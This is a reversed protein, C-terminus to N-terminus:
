KIGLKKIRKQEIHIKKWRNKEVKAASMNQKQETYFRERELKQFATLRKKDLTGNKIAALVACGPETEHTCNSFKCQLQLTEIDAFGRSIGEESDWLALERMGPSDMIVGGNPLPILERYTTTHRGKDDWERIDQVPKEDKGLLANILTSKGVGSSGLLAATKGVGVLKSISALGIKNKASVSLVTTEPFALTMRQEIENPNSVLDTKNLLIVPIAGSEWTLILYREIRRENLDHNVSTTILVYDVNAGLVQVATRTGAAKRVLLTKRKLIREVLVQGECDSFACIVWDGTAPLDNKGSAEFFLKGAPKGWVEGKECVIRVLGKQEELVRGIIKTQKEKETMQQAFYENWGYLDLYSSM